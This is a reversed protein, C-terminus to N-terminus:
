KVGCSGPADVSRFAIAYSDSTGDAIQSRRPCYGIHHSLLLTLRFSVYRSRDWTANMHVTYIAEEVAM